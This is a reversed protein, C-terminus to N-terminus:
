ILKNTVYYPSCRINKELPLHPLLYCKEIIGLSFRSIVQRPPNLKKHRHYQGHPYWRHKTTFFMKSLQEIRPRQQKLPEDKVEVRTKLVQDHTEESNHLPDPRPIPKTHEYPIDVSPRYCVITRGDSALALEVKYTCDDPLPPSSQHCASYLVGNRISLFHKLATRNSLAWTVAAVAM